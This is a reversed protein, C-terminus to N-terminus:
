TLNKKEKKKNFQKNNIINKNNYYDNTVEENNYKTNEIHSSCDINLVNRNNNEFWVLENNNNPIIDNIHDDASKIVNYEINDICENTEKILDKKSGMLRKIFSDRKKFSKKSKKNQNKNTIVKYNNENTNNLPFKKSSIEEKKNTTIDNKVNFEISSTSGINKEKINSQQIDCKIEKEILGVFKNTNKSLMDNNKTQKIVGDFTNKVFYKKNKFIDNNKNYKKDKENLLKDKKIKKEDISYKELEVTYNYINLLNEENNINNSFNNDWESEISGFNSDTDIFENNREVYEVPRTYPQITTENLWYYLDEENPLIVSREWLNLDDVEIYALYIEPHRKIFLISEENTMPGRLFRRTEIKTNMFLEHFTKLWIKNELKKDFHTQIIRRQSVYAGHFTKKSAFFAISMIQDCAKEPTLLFSKCFFNKIPSLLFNFSKGMLNNSFTESIPTNVIGPSVAIFSCESFHIIKSLKKTMIIQCAKSNSYAKWGNYKGENQCFNDDLNYMDFAFSTISIVKGKSYRLLPLLNITLLFHGFYNSAMVLESGEKITLNREKLAGIGANNVLLDIKKCGKLIQFVVRIISSYSSLDGKFIFLSGKSNCFKKKINEVCKQTKRVNRVVMIVTANRSYLMESLALGIGSSAGTIVIVKGNLDFNMDLPLNPIETKFYNYANRDFYIVKKM